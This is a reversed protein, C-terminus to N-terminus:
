QGTARALAAELSSLQGVQWAQFTAEPPTLTETITATPIAAATAAKVQAQVDPTSNQRNFVYAKIQHTKIQTDIAAKDAATPEAGESIANLFTEPTLLKLGLANALPAFVSESAGVPTGGYKTRIEAIMAHYRALGTGVFATHAQDFYAADAPDLSKYDATIQDIVREVVDPAYWLHPNSGPKVGVLDGAALVKRGSHPNGALLKPAWPDYGVGNYIVYAASAVMRADAPTPEYSHPDTAPNTVISVVNARSGGLQAAISGWFNEAAIVSLRGPEALTAPKSSTCAALSAATLGCVFLLGVTRRGASFHM